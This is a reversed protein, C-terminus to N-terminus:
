VCCTNRRTDWLPRDKPWEEEDNGHVRQSIDTEGDISSKKICVVNEDVLAYPTVQVSYCQLIVDVDNNVPNAGGSKPKVGCFCLEHYKGSSVIGRLEWDSHGAGCNCM